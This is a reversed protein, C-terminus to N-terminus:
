LNILYDNLNIDHELHLKKRLRYRKIEVSRHSINLLPAIEKSSLNLRLYVCLKLDNPTLNPHNEKIKKFFEKDAHNFAEEFFEWDKKDNIISDINEIVSKLRNDDNLSKLQDKISSLVTKKGILNMTSIALERNRAEIDQSLKESNLEYIEKQAALQKLKLDKTTEELIRERQRKYYRRYIGNIIIFTLILLLAYVAIAKNSLYWPRLIIFSIKASENLPVENVKARVELTYDGYPMNKLSYHFNHTWDSWMESFGHVKYQFEAMEYKEYVPVSVEIQINNNSYPLELMDTLKLRNSGSENNSVTISNISVTLEKDNFRKLDIRLYGGSNGYIFEDKNLFTLNEFGEMENRLYHPLSVKQFAYSNDIDDKSIGILNSKTVLWLREFSDPILSGSVYEGKNLLSSLESQKEFKVRNSPSVYIGESNAFYIENEFRSLGCHIGKPPVDLKKFELVAKNFKDLKLHYIGKYEHSVLIENKGVWEFDRSSINFGSMKNKISWFDNKRELLYLGNYNGQVLLDNEGPVNQIDWAGQIDSIKSVNEEEVVFTGANHGCFLTGQLKRLCWVQGETGEILKFPSESNLKRVFLGQNTGLYLLEGDVLSTYTTGLSGDKEIYSHVPSTMNICDIGNDLGLWVNQDQDEFLSLITNNQLGNNVNLQFDIKGNSNLHINGNAISGLVLNGNERQVSSYITVEKLLENSPHKWTMLRNDRLILIGESETIFGTQGKISLAGIIRNFKAKEENTVLLKKGNDLTYIGEGYEQFYLDDAIKMVKTIIGAAEITTFENTITNMIIIRDLSQFLLWKKYPVINWIQEDEIMPFPLREDLSTYELFGTQNKKWYGFGMYFGTFISDGKALVSRMISENPTEYLSWKSGNFELLGENNAVYIFRNEGQSIMWNQNGGGYLEPQYNVIPPLEQSHLWPSLTFLLYFLIYYTRNM